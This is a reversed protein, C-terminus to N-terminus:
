SLIENLAAKMMSFHPFIQERMDEEQVEEEHFLNQLPFAHASFNIFVDLRGFQKIIQQVVERAFQEDVGDDIEAGPILLCRRGQEEVQEKISAAMGHAANFYVVAVDMGREAFSVALSRGSETAGGIILAVKNELEVTTASTEEAQSESSGPAQDSSDLPIIAIERASGNVGAGSPAAEESMHEPTM